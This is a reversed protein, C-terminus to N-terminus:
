SGAVRVRDGISAVGSALVILNVGRLRLSETDKHNVWRLADVGFRQRFTKCGTHPEPSVRCRASGVYLETGVPLAEASLDLDVLFNDGADSGLTTGHAILSAVTSSMLTVQCLREPDDALRWRDGVVGDELTIEATRPLAHAGGGSRLCISTIVGSGRPLPPASAWARKLEELSKM